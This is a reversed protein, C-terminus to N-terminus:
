ICYFNIYIDGRENIWSGGNDIFPDQLCVGSKKIEAIAYERIQNRSDNRSKDFKVLSKNSSIFYFMHDDGYAGRLRKLFEWHGEKGIVMKPSYFIGCSSAALIAVSVVIARPLRM